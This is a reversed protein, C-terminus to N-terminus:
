ISNIAAEVPMNTYLSKFDITFVNCDSDFKASELLKVLSFSYSLISDFKMYFEKLFHGALVSVPTLIWDYGAVIPKGIIPNKLIKWIISDKEKKSCENRLM